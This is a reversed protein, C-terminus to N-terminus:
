ECGKTMPGKYVGPRREEDGAATPGWRFKAISGPPGGAGVEIVGVIMRDAPPSRGTVIVELRDDHDIVKALFYTWTTSTNRDICGALARPSLRSAFTSSVQGASVEDVSACGIGQAMLWLGAAFKAGRQMTNSTMGFRDFLTHSSRGGTM